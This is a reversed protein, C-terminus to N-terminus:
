GNRGVRLMGGEENCGERSVRDRAAGRTGVARGRDLRRLVRGMGEWFAGFPPQLLGRLSVRGLDRPLWGRGCQPDM